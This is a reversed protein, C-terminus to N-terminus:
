GSKDIYSAILKKSPTGDPFIYDVQEKHIIM